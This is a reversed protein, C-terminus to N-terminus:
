EVITHPSAGTVRAFVESVAAANQEWSGAPCVIRERDWQHSLGQRLNAVLDDASEPPFLLGSGEPLIEPIGGTDSAVVPTGCALSELVVNPTGENRSPLCFIDCANFWLGLSRHPVTGHFRVRASIRLVAALKELRTREPGDGLIHLEAQARELRAVAGILLDVRKVPKLNGAFLVIEAGDSLGLQRRAEGKEMPPFVNRDVGNYIVHIKEAEIGEGLLTQELDKSVSVIAASRHMADLILRKRDPFQFYDNIDSGHLRSVVPIGFPAAARVAAYCDPYAWTAYVLSPQLQKALRDFLSRISYLYFSGYRERLVRPTYFYTPYYARLRGACDDPATPTKGALALKARHPWPVPSVVHLDHREALHVFQQRNFSAFEPRSNDPFLNTVCVVKV